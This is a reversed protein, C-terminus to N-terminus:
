ALAVANSTISWAEGSSGFLLGVDKCGNCGGCEVVM